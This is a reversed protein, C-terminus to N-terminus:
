GLSRPDEESLFLVMSSNAQFLSHSESSFVLLAIHRFDSAICLKEAPQIHASAATVLGPAEGPPGEPAQHPWGASFLSSQLFPVALVSASPHLQSMTLTAPAQPADSQLHGIAWRDGLIKAGPVLKTSSLKEVSRPPPITKLLNLCIM